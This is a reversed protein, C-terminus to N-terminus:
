WKHGHGSYTGKVVVTVGPLPQGTDDTVTGSVSKQQFADVFENETKSDTLVIFRDKIVYKVNTGDFLDKLVQDIKQNKINVSVERDVDILNESYLFSFESQEEIGNLVEKVTADRMNLNIMKTQSYSKNALVGAVTVLLLFVTLKMVRLLKILGPTKWDRYFCFNKM